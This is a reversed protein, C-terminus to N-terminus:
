PIQITSFGSATLFKGAACTTSAPLNSEACFVIRTSFIASAGWYPHACSGPAARNKEGVRHQKRGESSNGTLSVFVAVGLSHNGPKTRNAASPEDDGTVEDAASIAEGLRFRIRCRRSSM